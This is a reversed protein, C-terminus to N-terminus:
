RCPFTPRLRFGEDDRRRSSVEPTVLEYIKIFDAGLADLWAVKERAIEVSAVSTGLAPQEPEAGDYVVPEGDLLPGSFFLRPAHVVGARQWGARIAALEKADGGTDRVSTIGYALFLEAMSSTLDPDYLFHVHADWLGPILFRDQGDITRSAPPGSAGTDSADMPGVWVIRDGRLVVRQNARTGSVADIVSVSEIALDAMAPPVRTPDVDHTRCAWGWGWSLALVSLVAWKMRAM